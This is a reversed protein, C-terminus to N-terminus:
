GKMEAGSDRFDVCAGKKGVSGERTAVNRKGESGYFGEKREARDRDSTPLVGCVVM